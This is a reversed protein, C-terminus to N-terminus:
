MSTARKFTLLSIRMALELARKGLRSRYLMMQVVARGPFAAMEQSDGHPPERPHGGMERVTGEGSGGGVRAARLTEDWVMM